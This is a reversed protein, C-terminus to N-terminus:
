IIFRDIIKQKITEPYLLLNTIEDLDHWELLYQNTECNKEAEPGGLKVDGAFQTSLFVHHSRSDYDNIFEWLKCDLKVDLNTEEKAERIAAAPLEEGVEVGGGPIVYYESGNKIRHMLLIQRNKIILTSSREPQKNSINKPNQPTM